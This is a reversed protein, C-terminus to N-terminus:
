TWDRTNGFYSVLWHVLWGCVYMPVCTHPHVHVCVCVRGSGGGGGGGFLMTEQEAGFWCFCVVKCTYPIMKKSTSLTGRFYSPNSNKSLTFSLWLRRVLRIWIEGQWKIMLWGDHYSDHFLLQLAVINMNRCATCLKASICTTMVFIYNSSTRSMQQSM